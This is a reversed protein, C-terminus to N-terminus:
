SKRNSHALVLSGRTELLPTEQGNEYSSALSDLILHLASSASVCRLFYNSAAAMSSLFYSSANIFEFNCTSHKKVREIVVFVKQVSETYAEMQENSVLSTEPTKDLHNRFFSLIESELLLATATVLGRSRLFFLEVATKGDHETGGTEAKAIHQYIIKQLRNYVHQVFDMCLEYASSKKSLSHRRDMINIRRIVSKLLLSNSVFHVDAANQVLPEMQHFFNELLRAKKEHYDLCLAFYEGMVDSSAFLVGEDSSFNSINKTLQSVLNALCPADFDSSCLLTKPLLNAIISKTSRVINLLQPDICEQEAMAQKIVQSSLIDLGVVRGLLNLHESCLSLELPVSALFSLTTSVAYVNNSDPSLKAEGTKALQICYGTLGSSEQAIKESLKGTNQVSDILRCSAFQIGVKMFLAMVEGVDYFSADRALTLVISKELRFVQLPLAGDDHIEGLTSFFWTL